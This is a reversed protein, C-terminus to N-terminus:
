VKTALFFINNHLSYSITMVTLCNFEYFTIHVVNQISKEVNIQVEFPNSILYIKVFYSTLTKRQSIFQSIPRVITVFYELFVM